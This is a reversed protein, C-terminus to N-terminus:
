KINWKNFYEDETMDGNAVAMRDYKRMYHRDVHGSMRRATNRTGTIGKRINEGVKYDFMLGGTPIVGGLTAGTVLGTAMSGLGSRNEVVSEREPDGSIKDMQGERMFKPKLSHWKIRLKDIWKKLGFEKQVPELASFRKIRM